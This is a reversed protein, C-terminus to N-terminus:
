GDIKHGNEDYVNQQVVRWDLGALRIADASTPADDVSIGQGHWPVNRGTYFMTEVLSAM